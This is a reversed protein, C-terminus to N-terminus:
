SAKSRPLQCGSKTAGRSTGNCTATRRSFCWYVPPTVQLGGMATISVAGIEVPHSLSRHVTSIPAELEAAVATMSPWRRQGRRTRELLHRWVVEVAPMVVATYEIEMNRHFCAANRGGCQLV